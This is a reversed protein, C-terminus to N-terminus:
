LGCVFCFRATHESNFNCALFSPIGSAAQLGKLIRVRGTTNLLKSPCRKFKKKKQAKKSRKKQQVTILLLEGSSPETLGTKLTPVSSPPILASTSEPSSRLSPVLIKKTVKAININIAKRKGLLPTPPPILAPNDDV